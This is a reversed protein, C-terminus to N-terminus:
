RHDVGHLVVRAARDFQGERCTTLDLLRQFFIVANAGLGELFQLIVLFIRKIDKKIGVLLDGLAILIGAHDLEDVLDDPLRVLIPCRINVKLRRLVLEADAVAHVADEVLCRHGWLQLAILGRQDRADLYHGPHVNGLLTQRLIAADVDADLALFEVDTDGGHRRNVSLTHRQTQQSAPINKQAEFLQAEVGLVLLHQAFQDDLWM